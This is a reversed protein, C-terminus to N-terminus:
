TGRAVDAFTYRGRATVTTAIVGSGVVLEVPVGDADSFVKTGVFRGTSDTLYGVLVVPGSIERNPSTPSDRACGALGLLGSLGLLGAFGVGRPVRRAPGFRMDFLSPRAVPMPLCREPSHPLAAHSSM